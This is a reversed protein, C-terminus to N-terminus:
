HYHYALSFWWQPAEKLLELQESFTSAPHPQPSCDIVPCGPSFRQHAVRMAGFSPSMQKEQPADTDRKKQYHLRLKIYELKKSM